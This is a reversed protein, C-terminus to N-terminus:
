RVGGLWSGSCIECLRSNSDDHFHFIEPASVTRTNECSSILPVPTVGVFTFTIFEVAVSHFCMLDSIGEGFM